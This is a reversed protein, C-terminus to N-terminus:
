FAQGIIEIKSMLITQFQDGIIFDRLDSLAQIYSSKGDANVWWGGERQPSVVILEHGITNRFAVALNSKKTRNMMSVFSNNSLKFDNM